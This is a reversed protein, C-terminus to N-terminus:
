LVAGFVRPHFNILLLVVRLQIIPSHNPVEPNQIHWCFTKSEETQSLGPRIMPHVIIERHTCKLDKPSKQLFLCLSVSSPQTISHQVKRTLCTFYYTCHCSVAVKRSIQPRDSNFSCSINSSPVVRCLVNMFAKLPIWLSANVSIIQCTELITVIM